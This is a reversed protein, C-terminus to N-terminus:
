IMKQTLISKQNQQGKEKLPDEKLGVFLLVQFLLSLTMKKKHTKSIILNNRQLCLLHQSQVKIYLLQIHNEQSQELVPNLKKM